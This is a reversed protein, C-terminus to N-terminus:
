ETRLVLQKYGPINWIDLLEKFEQYEEKEIISKSTELMRAVEIIQGNQHIRISVRGIKSQKELTVPNSLHFGTPVTFSYQYTENILRGLDLTTSRRIALPNLHLSSIGNDSEMLDIFRFNGRSKVANKNDPLLRIVSENAALQDIIAPAGLFNYKMGSRLLDNWPNYSMSRTLTIEGKVSGEATVDLIGKMVLKGNIRSDQLSGADAGFIVLSKKGATQDPNGVGINDGSLFIVEKQENRVSVIPEASLIFPLKEEQLCAPITLGIQPTIGESRLIAALLCCKEWVTGSNSQWVQDPTRVRFALLPAPVATLNVEKVVIEQIKLAKAMLTSEGAIKSDIYNKIEDKLPATYAEQTTLWKIVSLYDQQTSFILRPQDGCISALMERNRQRLDKFQWTYSTTEKGIVVVPQVGSNFLKYNLKKGAPIKVLITLKEVPCENEIDEMGFLWPFSGAASHVEYSCNITAGRELGTHTVVMERLHIFDAPLNSFGPLLENYGNQPTELLKYLSNETNAKKILVQQFKPNYLIRTEGYMSQFARYTLLKQSKDVSYVMSGDTNLVYTKTLNLYVADAEPYSKKSNQGSADLLAFSFIGTILINRILM